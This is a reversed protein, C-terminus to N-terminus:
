IGVFVFTYRIDVAKFVLLGEETIFGAILVCM